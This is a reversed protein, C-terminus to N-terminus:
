QQEEQTKYWLMGAVAGLEELKVKLKNLIEPFGDNAFAEETTIGYVEKIEERLELILGYRNKTKWSDDKEKLVQEIALAFELIEPRLEQLIALEPSDEEIETDLGTIVEGFFCGGEIYYQSNCEPCYYTEFGLCTHKEFEGEFGCVKKHMEEFRKEDDVSIM